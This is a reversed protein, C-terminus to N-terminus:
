TRLLASPKGRLKMESPASEACCAMEWHPLALICAIQRKNGGKDLFVTMSAHRRPVAVDSLDNVYFLAHKMSVMTGNYQYGASVLGLVWRM